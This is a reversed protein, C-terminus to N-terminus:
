ALGLGEAGVAWRLTTLNTDDRICEQPAVLLRRADKTRAYFSSRASEGGKGWLPLRFYGLTFGSRLRLPFGPFGVRLSRQAGSPRQSVLCSEVGISYRGQPGHFLRWVDSGDAGAVGAFLHGCKKRMHDFCSRCREWCPTCHLWIDELDSGCPSLFPPGYATRCMRGWLCGARQLHRM